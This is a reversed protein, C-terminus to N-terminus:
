EAAGLPAQCFGDEEIEAALTLALPEDSVKPVNVIWVPDGELTHTLSVPERDPANLWRASVLKNSINPLVIRRGAFRSPELVHIFLQGPKQTFCVEPAEYVYPPTATSGFISEGCRSLWAGVADLVAESEAPITGDPEPGVNLLYNGGRAIIRLLRHLVTEPSAWDHDAKKFGWSHNLTAPVEWLGKVPFAPIRNDQTTMYDGIKNGIRGSILCEPQLSKVLDRLEMSEERTMGMPTDFWLMAVPGYNTLLERVQPFCKEELYRRFLKGSNDSYAKYGDPHHWDQAQSYYLCFKLGNRHCAEALEGVLDRHSVSREVSNYPDAESRFLAYGDHHKSTLCVYRMGWAKAKRCIAEADFASPDFQDALLEYEEKPIDASHMIWEAIGPVQRGKYEGGLISYLGYHIFLGYKDRRFWTM